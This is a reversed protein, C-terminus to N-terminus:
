CPPNLADLRAKEALYADLAECGRCNGEDIMALYVHRAREEIEEPTLRVPAPRPIYAIRRPHGEWTEDPDLIYEVLVGAALPAAAWEEASIELVVLSDLFLTISERADNVPFTTTARGSGYDVSRGAYIRILEDLEGRKKGTM